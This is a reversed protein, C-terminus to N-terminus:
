MTAARIWTPRPSPWAAGKPSSWRWRRPIGPSAAIGRGPLTKASRIRSSTRCRESIGIRKSDVVVLVFYEYPPDTRLLLGRLEKLAKQVLIRLEPPDKPRFPNFSAIAYEVLLDGERRQSAARGARGPTYPLYIWVTEESEKIEVQTQLKSAIAEKALSIFEERPTPAVDPGCGATFVVLGLLIGLRYKKM